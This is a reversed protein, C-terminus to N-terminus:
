VLFRVRVVTCISPSSATHLGAKTLHCEPMAEPGERRVTHIAFAIGYQQWDLRSLATEGRRRSSSRCFLMALSVFTQRM